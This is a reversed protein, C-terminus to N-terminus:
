KCNSALTYGAGEAEEASSFTIKNKESISKAGPCWPFHYKSGSKSAVVEGVRPVVRLDKTNSGSVSAVSATERSPAGEGEPYLIRVPSSAVEQTSMRGLGFSATGVLVVTIAVLLEHPVSLLASKIKLLAERIIM